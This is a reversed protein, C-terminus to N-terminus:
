AGLLNVLLTIGFSLMTALGIMKGVTPRKFVSLFLLTSKIDVMPGFTLFALISGTTFANSFSLAIFADVTSCISLVFALVMLVVISVVPGGGISLLASQPVFTQMAAALMSGVILYRVMDLFDDGGVSLATWLKPLFGEVPHHHEGHGEMVQPLLLDDPRSRTFVLGIVFAIFISILFRGYFEPGWGFASYTSVLVIPNVVPAAMLFSMGVAPPIGKRYLRRTVPVVGCECVPFLIGLLSGSLAALVRNRPVFRSIMQTGVFVELLGSLISGAVLFPSAEIFIGLFITTFISLRVSVQDPAFRSLSIIVAIAVVLAPLLYRGLADSHKRDVAHEHSIDM